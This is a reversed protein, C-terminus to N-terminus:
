EIRSTPNPASANQAPGIWVTKINVFEHIGFDSLERGYGSRKVGGFPLRPDSAVMGNVFVSGAEVRRALWNGREVDRTWLSAGLGYNSDNAIRIADEENEARHVAAVPGFTEQRWVPMDGGAGSIVTPAYYCGPRDLRRGGTRIEAGQDLSARVQKELADVLDERALPGVQTSRELPDGVQLREVAAVFRQEFEDAVSRDVIFRKAAICSQGTNQFRAQVGVEAAAELDADALVIFPDSGGLEMVTKKLHQGAQQAVKSGTVDSGTLTVARIRRDAIVDEVMDSSILLTRFVGEPFGSEQFVEELALASQPVNSAHKLLAVNGAALAPAAFRIVQWFPFNWPMVALIPGLPEFAVLSRQANTAVERDALFREANEAYYDCCWACKEIEAEAQTIPKGMETTIIRAFRSKHERLYAAAGRLLDARNAFTRSRWDPFAATTAELAREVADPSYEEFTATTEGTAPNISRITM